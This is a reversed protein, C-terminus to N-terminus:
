VKILVSSCFARRRKYCVGGPAHAARHFVHLEVIMGRASIAWLLIRPVNGAFSTLELGAQFRGGQGGQGM